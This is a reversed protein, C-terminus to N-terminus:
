IMSEFELGLKITHTIKDIDEDPVSKIKSLISLWKMTSLYGAYIYNLNGNQNSTKSLYYVEEEGIDPVPFVFGNELKVFKWYKESFLQKNNHRIDAIHQYVATLYCLTNFRSYFGFRKNTQNEFEEKTSELIKLSM